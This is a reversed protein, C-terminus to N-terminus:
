RLLAQMVPIGALTLAAVILAWVIIAKWHAAFM